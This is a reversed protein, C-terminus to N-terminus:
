ATGRRGVKFPSPEGRRGRRRFLEIGEAYQDSKVEAMTGADPLAGQLLSQTFAEFVSRHNFFTALNYHKELFDKQIYEAYGEIRTLAQHWTSQRLARAIEGRDTDGPAALLDQLTNAYTRHQERLDPTNRYQGVHVLEHGLVVKLADLNSRDLWTANVILADEFPDYAAMTGNMNTLFSQHAEPSATACGTDIYESLRAQWHAGFDPNIRVPLDDLLGSWGTLSEVMPAVELLCHAVLPDDIHLRVVAKDVGPTAGLGEVFTGEPSLAVQIQGLDGGPDARPLDCRGVARYSQGSLRSFVAYLDPAEEDEGPDQNFERRTFAIQFQGQEGTVGVGLLDDPNDEDREVIAVRIGALPHGKPTAFRGKLRHIPQLDEM